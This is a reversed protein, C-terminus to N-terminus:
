NFFHFDFIKSQLFCTIRSQFGLKKFSVLQLMHRQGAVLFWTKLIGQNIQQYELRLTTAKAKISTRLYGKQRTNKQQLYSQQIVLTQIMIQYLQTLFSKNLRTRFSEVLFLRLIELTM